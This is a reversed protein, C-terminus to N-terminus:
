LNWFPVSIISAGDLWARRSRRTVWFGVYSQSAVHSYLEPARATRDGFRSRARSTVSSICRADLHARRASCENDNIAPRSRVRAGLIQHRGTGFAQASVGEDTVRM